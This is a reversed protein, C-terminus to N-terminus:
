QINAETAGGGEIGMAIPLVPDGNATMRVIAASGTVDVPVRFVLVGGSFSVVTATKDAVTVRLASAPSETVPGNLRVTALGGPAVGERGSGVDTVQGRFYSQRSNMPGITLGSPQTLVRLGNLVTATVPGPLANGATVVNALIRNPGPVWMRTVTIGSSGLALKLYAPNFQANTGLIEVATEVGAPVSGTTVTIAAAEGGDLEVAPPAGAQLFLNSQGDTNLATVTVRHGAVGPPPTVFIVGSAEDFRQVVPLGDFLIRTDAALNQGSIVVTRAGNGDLTPVASMIQPPGRRTLRFASPLVYLDGDAAFSLHRAGEGAALNFQFDMQVFRPDQPYPRVGGQPIAASGGLVSVAAAPSLGYGSAVIFSRTSTPSLHAPKVAVQGPFSFTEVGFVAPAPRRNVSFNINDTVRGAEVVVASARSFDKTGPYVSAEFSTEVPLPRGDADVPPIVGANYAEGVIAPPLPHAYVFYSAGAPVGDIRYSGDPHTLTSIARGDLSIAVVSALRVGTNGMRVWGAISGSGAALSARGYLLRLGVVDDIALPAAKTTARTIRTSMVSSTMSHQLGLAHGFEHTVTLFFSESWTATQSFNNSLVVKSKQIAVFPGSPSEKIVGTDEPGGYGFVGPPLEEFVVEIAPSNHQTNPGTLGGFDLSLDSGPVDSWVSAALRIQSILSGFSDNPLMQQPGRDAIFYPVTQNNLAALDFKELIPTYPATRTRYRVFHYYGQAGSAFAIAGLVAVVRQQWARM